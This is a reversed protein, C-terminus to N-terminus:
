SKYENMQGIRSTFIVMQTWQLALRTGLNVMKEEVSVLVESLRGRNLSNAYGTMAGTLSM